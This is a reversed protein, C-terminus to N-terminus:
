VDSEGEADLRAYYEREIIDEIEVPDPCLFVEAEKSLLPPTAFPAHECDVFAAVNNCGCELGTWPCKM